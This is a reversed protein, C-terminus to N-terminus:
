CRVRQADNHAARGARAGSARASDAPVRACGTPTPEDRVPLAPAIACPCPPRAGCPRAGSLVSPDIFDDAAGPM